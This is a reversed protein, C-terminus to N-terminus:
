FLGFIPRFTNFVDTVMVIQQLAGIIANLVQDAKKVEKKAEKLIGELRKKAASSGMKNTSSQKIESLSRLKKLCKGNDTLATKLHGEIRKEIAQSFTSSFEAKMGEIEEVDEM